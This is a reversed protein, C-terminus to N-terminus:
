KSSEKKLLRRSRPAFDRNEDPQWMKIELRTKGEHQIRDIYLGARKRMDQRLKLILNRYGLKQLPHNCERLEKELEKMFQLDWVSERIERHLHTRSWKLDNYVDGIPIDLSNSIERPKLGKEELTIVNLRRDRIEEKRGFLFINM